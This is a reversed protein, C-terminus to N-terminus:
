TSWSRIELGTLVQVAIELKERRANQNAIYNPHTEIGPHAYNVVLSNLRRGYFYAIGDLDFAFQHLHNECDKNATILLEIM